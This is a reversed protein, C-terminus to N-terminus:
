NDDKQGPISGYIYGGHNVNRELEEFMAKVSYNGIGYLGKNSDHKIYCMRAKHVKEEDEKSKLNTSIKVDNSILNYAKPKNIFYVNDIEQHDYMNRFIKGLNEHDKEPENFYSFTFFQFENQEGTMNQVTQKIKDVNNPTQWDSIDLYSINQDLVGYVKMEENFENKRAKVFEDLTMSSPINKFTGKKIAKYIGSGDGKNILVVKVNDVGLENIANVIASHAFLVVDDEHSFFFAAKPKKFKIEGSDIKNKINLVQELNEKSIEKTIYVNKFNSKSLYKCHRRTIKDKILVIPKRLLSANLIEDSNKGDSLVVSSFNEMFKENVEDNFDYINKNDIKEFKIKKANKLKENGIVYINKYKNNKLLQLYPIKEDKSLIVPAKLKCIASTILINKEIEKDNIVFINELNDMQKVINKNLEYIDKGNIVSVNKCIGDMKKIMENNVKKISLLVYINNPSLKKITDITENNIENNNMTLITANKYSAFSAALIKELTNDNVLVVDKNKLINRINIKQELDSKNSINITQCKGDEIEVDKAVSINKNSNFISMNATAIILIVICAIIVKIYSDRRNRERKIRRKSKM